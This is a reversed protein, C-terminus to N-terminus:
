ICKKYTLTSTYVVPYHLEWCQQKDMLRIMRQLPGSCYLQTLNKYHKYYWELFQVVVLMLTGTNYLHISLEISAEYIVIECLGTATPKHSLTCVAPYWTAILNSNKLLLYDTCSAFMQRKPVAEFKLHIHIHTYRSATPLRKVTKNYQFVM